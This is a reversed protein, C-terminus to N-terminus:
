RLRCGQSADITFKWTKPAAAPGTSRYTLAARTFFHVDGCFTRVRHFIATAELTESHSYGDSGIYSWVVPGHGRASSRTWSSWEISPAYFQPGGAFSTSPPRYESESTTGSDAIYTRDSSPPPCEIPGLETSSLAGAHAPKRGSPWTMILHSFFWRGCTWTPSDLVMRVPDTETPGGACGHACTDVHSTGTGVAQNHTWSSWKADTIWLTSDASVDVTAPKVRADEPLHSEAFYTTPAPAAAVSQVPTAGGSILDIVMM